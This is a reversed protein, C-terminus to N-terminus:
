VAQPRALVLTPCREGLEYRPTHVAIHEFHEGLVRKFERLTPFAHVTTANQYFEITQIDEARWGSRSPFHAGNVHQKWARYVDKVCVGRRSDAQMSMLLRFKFHHFSPVSPNHLDAFVQDPTEPSDLQTYCRLIARGGPVILRRLERALADIGDPYRVCNASGDGIAVDFSSHRLPMSRWDACIAHRTNPINGPWLANLMELCSDAAVLVGGALWPRAVLAPTVGLLLVRLHQTETAGPSEQVAATIIEEDEPSPKLPPGLSAFSRAFREWYSDRSQIM